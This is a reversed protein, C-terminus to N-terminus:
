GLSGRTCRAGVMAVLEKIAGVIGIPDLTIIVKYVKDVIPKLEVLVEDVRNVIILISDLRGMLRDDLLKSLLLNLCMELKASNSLM